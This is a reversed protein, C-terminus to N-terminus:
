RMAGILSRQEYFLYIYIYLGHYVTSMMSAKKMSDKLGCIGEIGRFGSPALSVAELLGFGRPFRATLSSSCCDGAVCFGPCLFDRVKETNVGPRESCCGMSSPERVCLSSAGAGNSGFGTGEGGGRAGRLGKLSNIFAMITVILSAMRENLFALVSLRIVRSIIDNSGITGGGGLFFRDSFIISRTVEHIRPSVRRSAALVNTGISRYKSVAELLM